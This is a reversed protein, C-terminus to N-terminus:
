TLRFMFCSGIEFIVLAFLVSLTAWITCHRSLLFLARLEVRWNRGTGMHTYM